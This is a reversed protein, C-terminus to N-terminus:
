KEYINENKDNLMNEKEKSVEDSLNQTVKDWDIKNEIDSMFNLVEEKEKLDIMKFKKVLEKDGIIGGECSVYDDIDSSFLECKTLIDNGVIEISQLHPETMDINRYDWDGCLIEFAKLKKNIDLM